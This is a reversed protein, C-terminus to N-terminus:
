DGMEGSLEKKRRNREILWVLWISGEFIALMPIALTMFTMPDPTPSIIAVIILIIAVAYRRTKQLLEFSIVNLVSLVIMVLPLECLFGCALCLQTVFSFYTGAKWNSSFGMSASFAHFWVLTKPLIYEFGIFVGFAFLLSGALIGPGLLRKEKRTLAPLIFSIVFYLQFPFSIGIGAFFALKLAISFGETIELIQLEGRDAMGSSPDLLRAKEALQKAQPTAQYEELVAGAIQQRRDPPLPTGAVKEAASVALASFEGLLLDHLTRPQDPNRQTADVRAMDILPQRLLATLQNRFCFALIMSIVLVTGMKMLTVRLDELHDLFPKEADESGQNQSRFNFLSRLLSM